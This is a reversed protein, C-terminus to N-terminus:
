KILAKIVPPLDFADAPVTDFEVAAINIETEFGLARQRITTPLKVKGFPKYNLLIETTPVNGMPTARTGEFGLLLGTAADFYEFQETGSQLTVKVKIAPTRGFEERAVPTFEKVFEPGYLIADFASDDAMETLERGALVAPGSIPDITWGVKGNYGSEIKGVGELTVRLRMLAPRASMLDLTGSMAQAPLSFTGTARMSKLAKWAAEGGIAEIHRAIVDKGTPLPAQARAGIRGSAFVSVATLMAALAFSRHAGSRRFM